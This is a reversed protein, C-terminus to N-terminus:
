QSGALKQTKDKTPDVNELSDASLMKNLENLSKEQVATKPLEFVQLSTIGYSLDEGEIKYITLECFNAQTPEKNKLTKTSIAFNKEKINQKTRDLIIMM